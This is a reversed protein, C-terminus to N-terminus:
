YTIGAAKRKGVVYETWGDFEYNLAVFGEATSVAKAQLVIQHIRHPLVKDWRTGLTREDNLLGAMWDEPGNWASGVNVSDETRQHQGYTQSSAKQIEMFFDRVNKGFGDTKIGDAVAVIKLLGDKASFFVAYVHFAPLPIPVTSLTLSDGGAEIVANAGVMQIVQERTMGRHMGFPGNDDRAMAAGTAMLLLVVFRIRMIRAETLSQRCVNHKGHDISVDTARSNKLTELLRWEDPRRLALAM